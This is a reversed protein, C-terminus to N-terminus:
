AVPTPAETMPTTVPFNAGPMQQVEEKVEGNIDSARPTTPDEASTAGQAKSLDVGLGKGAAADTQSAGNGNTATAASSQTLAAHGDTSQPGSIDKPTSFGEKNTDMSERVEALTPSAADNKVASTEKTGSQGATAGALGATGAGVVAAGAALANTGTGNKETTAAPGNSAEAETAAAATSATRVPVPKKHVSGSSGGFLRRGSTGSASRNSTKREAKPASNNREVTNGSVTGSANAQKAGASSTGPEDFLSAGLPRENLLEQKRRHTEELDKM